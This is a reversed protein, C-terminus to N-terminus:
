HAPWGTSPETQPGKNRWPEMAKRLEEALWDAQNKDRLFQWPTATKGDAQTLVLSYHGRKITSGDGNVHIKTISSCPMRRGRMVGFLVNRVSVHGDEVIIRSEGFAGFIIFFVVLLAIVIFTLPFIFPAGAYGLLVGIGACVLGVVISPLIGSTGKGPHIVFELGGAIGPIVAVTDQEVPAIVPGNTKVEESRLEEETINPSSLQTQFVPIEFSAAFDIGSVDAGCELKWFIRANESVRGTPSSDFPIRFRIPAGQTTGDGTPSLLATTPETQWEVHETTSTSKGSRQKVERICSLQISLSQGSPLGRPILVTGAVDGGLVGPVREMLFSCDGYKRAQITKRVAAIILGIGVLPFLLGILAAYNQKEIVEAPLFFLLPASVLNWLVAFGWLFMAASTSQSRVRGTAWDDRWNWPGDPHETRLADERKQREFGSKSMAYVALGAGAFALGAILMVIATQTDGKDFDLFSGYIIGLGVACFIFSFGYVAVKACGTGSKM